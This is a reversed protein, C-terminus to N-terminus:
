SARISLTGRGRGARPNLADRTTDSRAASGTYTRHTKTEFPAVKASPDALGEYDDAAAALITKLLALM